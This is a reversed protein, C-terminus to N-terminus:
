RRPVEIGCEEYRAFVDDPWGRPMQSKLGEESLLRDEEKSILACVVAKRLLREVRSVTLKGREHLDELQQYICKVPVAHDLVVESKRLPKGISEADLVAKSKFGKFPKTGIARKESLSARTPSLLVILAHIRGHFGAKAARKVFLPFLEFDRVIVRAADRKTFLPACTKARPKGIRRFQKGM